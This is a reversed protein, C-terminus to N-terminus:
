MWSNALSFCSLWSTSKSDTTATPSKTAFPVQEPIPESCFCEIDVHKLDPLNAGRNLVRGEDDLFQAFDRQFADRRPNVIRIRCNVRNMVDTVNQPFQASQRFPIEQKGIVLAVPVGFPFRHLRRQELRERGDLRIRAMVDKHHRGYKLCDSDGSQFCM